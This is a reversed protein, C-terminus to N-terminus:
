SIDADDSSAAMKDSQQPVPASTPNVNSNAAALDQLYGIGYSIDTLDSMESLDPTEDNLLQEAQEDTINQDIVQAAMDDLIDQGRGKPLRLIRQIISNIDEYGDTDVVSEGFDTELDSFCKLDTISRFPCEPRGEHIEGTKEDVYDLRKM